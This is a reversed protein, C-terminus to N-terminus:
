YGLDILAQLLTDETTAQMRPTFYQISSYHHFSAEPVNYYPFDFAASLRSYVSAKTPFAAIEIIATEPQCFIINAFGAGHVGIVVVARYFLELQHEIKEDAFGHLKFELGHAFAINALGQYLPLPNEVGRGSELDKRHLFLVFNRSLPLLTDHLKEYVVARTTHLASLPPIYFDEPHHFEIEPDTFVWDIYYLNKVKYRYQSALYPNAYDIYGLLQLYQAAFNTPNILIRVNEMNMKLVEIFTIIKTLSEITFHYYNIDLFHLVLANDIEVLKYDLYPYLDFRPEAFSNVYPYGPTYLTCSGGDETTILENSGQVVANKFRYLIAHKRSDDYCEIKFLENSDVDETGVPLNLETKVKKPWKQELCKSDPFEPYQIKEVEICDCKAREEPTVRDLSLPFFKAPCLTGNTNQWSHLVGEYLRTFYSEATKYDGTFLKAMGGNHYCHYPFYQPYAEHDKFCQNVTTETEKYNEEYLLTETWIGYWRNLFAGSNSKAIAKKAWFKAEERKKQEQNIKALRDYVLNRLEDVADLKPSELGLLIDEAKKYEKRGYYVDGAMAVTRGDNSQAMWSLDDDTLQDVLFIDNAYKTYLDILRKTAAEDNQKLKLQDIEERDSSYKPIVFKHPISDDTTANIQPTKNSSTYVIYGVLVGVIVSLIVTGNGSWFSTNQPQAKGKGKIKNINRPPPM